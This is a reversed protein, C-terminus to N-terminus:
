NVCDQCMGFASCERGPCCDGNTNCKKDGREWNCSGNSSALPRARFEEEESCVGYLSNFYTVAPVSLLAVVLFVKHTNTM